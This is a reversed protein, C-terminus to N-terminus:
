KSLWRVVFARPVLFPMDFDRLQRGFSEGDEYWYKLGELTRESTMMYIVKETWDKFKDNDKRPYWVQYEPTSM